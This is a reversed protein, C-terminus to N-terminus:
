KVPMFVIENNSNHIIAGYGTITGSWEIGKTLQYQPDYDDIYITSGSIYYTTSKTTSSIQQEKYTDGGYFGSYKWQTGSMSIECKSASKFTLVFNYNDYVSYHLDKSAVPNYDSWSGHYPTNIMIKATSTENDSPNEPIEPNDEEDDSGSCSSLSLIFISSLMVLAPLIFKSYFKLM